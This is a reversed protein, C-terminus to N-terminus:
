AQHEFGAIARRHEPVAELFARRLGPDRLRGADALVCRRAEGFALAAAPRDGAALRADGLAIWRAVEGEALGGTGGLGEEAVTRAAEVEGAALLARTLALAALPRGAPFPDLLAEARRAEALSAPGDAVTSAWWARAVGEGGADGLGAFLAVAEVVLPRAEATAGRGHLVRALDNLAPARPYGEIAVAARLAREAPDWAGLMRYGAGLSAREVAAAASAGARDFAEAARRAHDLFAECDGEIMAQTALARIVRGALEPARADLDPLMPELVRLIPWVRLAHGSRQHSAIAALADEIWDASPAPSSPPALVVGDEPAAAPALPGRGLRAALLLGTDV